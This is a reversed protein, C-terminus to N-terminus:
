VAPFQALFDAGAGKLRAERKDIKAPKLPAITIVGYILGTLLVLIGAIILLGPASGRSNVFAIGIFCAIGILCIATTIWRHRNRKARHVPCLSYTVIAKKRVIIAVILYILINFLILLAFIPSHWYFTKRIPRGDGPQACKVCLDPLVVQTPTILLHGTRWVARDTALASPTQYQLTAPPIPPPVPGTPSSETM